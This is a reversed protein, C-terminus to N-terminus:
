HQIVIRQTRGEVKVFYIGATWASVDM